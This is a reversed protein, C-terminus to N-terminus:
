GAWPSVEWAAVAEPSVEVVATIDRVTIDAPPGIKCSKTPGGNALGMFGKCDASWYVALRAKRLKITIGDTDTAQATLVFKGLPANSWVFSYPSSSDSGLLNAGEYFEVVTVTGDSDAATAAIAINSGVDIIAGNSPSTIAVTPAANVVITVPASVATAGLSDTAVATLVHTGVPANTWTFSYPALADEGLKNTGNDFFEVKAVGDSDAATAGLVITTPFTVVLGDVPSTLAVTPASNDDDMIVVTASAPPGAVYDFGGSLTVTVLENGERTSDNLVNVPLTTSASGIPITVTGTLTAYDVGPAANGTVTFHVVQPFSVSGSRTITCEGTNAGPESASADTALITM